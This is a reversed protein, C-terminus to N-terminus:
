PQASSIEFIMNVSTELEVKGIEIPTEYSAESSATKYMMMRPASFHNQDQDLVLSLVRILKVNAANSLATANAIANKAALQIVENRHAQPDVLTFSLQDIRNAGAEVVAGTLKELLELQQTKIKITNTVEYHSIKPAEPSHANQNTYVPQIQFRNTQYDQKPLGVADLRDIVAQMKLNNNQIAKKVDADQTVVALVLEAQDAQKFISASGKVVLKPISNFDEEAQCTGVLTLSLLIFSLLLHNKMNKGRKEVM